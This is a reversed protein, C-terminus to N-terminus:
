EVSPWINPRDMDCDSKVFYVDRREISSSGNTLNRIKWTFNIPNVKYRFPQFLGALSQLEPTYDANQRKFGVSNLIHDLRDSSFQFDAAVCGEDRAWTLVSSILEIFLPDTEGEWVKTRTPILEIIRLVKTRHLDENDPCYISEIRVVAVGNYAPDGFYLYIFGKSNSYRWDWFDADRYQSFSFSDQISSKYLSELQESSIKNPLLTESKKNLIENHWIDITELQVECSLLKKYHIPELPVVYRHLNDCYTYGMRKYLPVVNLNCGLTLTVPNYKESEKLLLIGVGSNKYQEEVSWMTLGIGNLLTGQNYYRSPINGLFGTIRDGNLLLYSASDLNDEIRYQWDFLNKDYIAHKPAWNVKLYQVLADFYQDKYPIIKLSHRGKWYNM